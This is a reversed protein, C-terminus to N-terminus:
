PLITEMAFGRKGRVVRDAARIDTHPFFFWVSRFLFIVGRLVILVYRRFVLKEEMRIIRGRTFTDSTTPSSSFEGGGNVHIVVKQIINLSFYRNDRKQFRIIKGM